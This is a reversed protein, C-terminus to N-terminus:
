MPRASHKAQIFDSHSVYILDSIKRIMHEEYKDIVSDAYAVHWMSTILHKKQEPSYNQNIVDTFKFLDNSDKVTAVAEDVIDKVQHEELMTHNFLALEILEREKEDPTHDAIMIEVMLVAAALEITPQPNEVEPKKFLDLLTDLM